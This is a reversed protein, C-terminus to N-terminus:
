ESSAADKRRGTMSDPTIVVCGTKAASKETVPDADLPRGLRRYFHEQFRRLLAFREASGEIIRARGFVLVSEFRVKCDGEAHPAMRDPSRFVIFVVRDNRRLVELKRGRPACHFVITKDLWAYSLPVGYPSTGDVLCLVGTEEEALIREIGARDLNPANKQSL